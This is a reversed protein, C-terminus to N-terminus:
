LTPQSLNGELYESHFHEHKKCKYYVVSTKKKKRETEEKILNLSIEELVEKTGGCKIYKEELYSLNWRKSSLDQNGCGDHLVHCFEFLAIMCYLLQVKNRKFFLLKNVVQGKNKM